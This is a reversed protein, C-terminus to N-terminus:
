MLNRNDHQEKDKEKNQTAFGRTRARTEREFNSFQPGGPYPNIFHYIQIFIL